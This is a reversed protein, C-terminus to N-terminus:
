GVSSCPWIAEIKGSRRICPRCSDGCANYDGDDGRWDRGSHGSFACLRRETREGGARQIVRCVRRLCCVCGSQPSHLRALATEDTASNAEDTSNEAVMSGVSTRHSFTTHSTCRASMLGTRTVCPMPKYVFSSSPKALHGTPPQVRNKPVSPYQSRVLSPSKVLIRVSGHQELWCSGCGIDMWRM